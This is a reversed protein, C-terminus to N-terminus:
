IDVNLKNKVNKEQVLIVQLLGFKISLFNHTKIKECFCKTELIIYHDQVYLVGLSPIVLVGEGPQYPNTVNEDAFSPSSFVVSFTLVLLIPALIRKM